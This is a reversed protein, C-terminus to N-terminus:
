HFCYNAFLGTVLSSDPGVPVCFDVAHYPSPAGPVPSPMPEVPIVSPSIPAHQVSAITTTDAVQTTTTVAQLQVATATTKDIIDPLQTPAAQASPKVAREVPMEAVPAITEEM